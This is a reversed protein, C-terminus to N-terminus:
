KNKNKLKNQLYLYFHLPLWYPAAMIFYALEFGFSSNPAPQGQLRSLFASFTNGGLNGLYIWDMYLYLVPTVDPGYFDEFVQRCSPEPQKGTEAYHQAYLLARYEYETSANKIDLNLLAAVEDPNLGQQLAQRTHFWSCYICDNVGTVALMIKEAFAPAIPKQRYIAWGLRWRRALQYIDRSLTPLTYVKRRFPPAQGVFRM